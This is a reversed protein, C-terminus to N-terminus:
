CEYIGRLTSIIVSRSCETHCNIIFFHKDIMIIVNGSFQEEGSEGEGGLRLGRMCCPAPPPRPILRSRNAYSGHIIKELMM